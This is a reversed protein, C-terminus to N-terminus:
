GILECVLDTYATPDELPLNAMLLGQDYLLEALKKAREPDSERSESLRQLLPHEPNVELIRGCHYDSSPDVTHMYKEMEFSMGGDPVMTVAHSGLETSVRVDKVKKGLSEKLFDVGSQFAKAKEEAAKKEEETALDLDDTLINRFEHEAYTNLTQPIFTDVQETMLLVDFGRERLLQTQPLQSLRAASDGTAFYIHKQSEPMADCYEKLTIDKGEKDSRFEVLDQLLDKHMGYDSVLGFKLQRGFAAYFTEYKERDDKLMRELEAKIKKELNAAIVKLERTHQLMERSINLSLDASDVLGKVFSFHDPLLDACKEMILVGSAYLQLGKEYEKSYYNYPARSPIFLLANYTATGETKSQIVKAPAAWDGFKQKYFDAYEEDTVKKKDRKWLPVMSNLTEDETYSEYEPAKYNGNEDQDTGEIPRSKERLMRIPWRIYDSYKKVLGALRYDDLFESYHEEGEDDKIVLIVDTGCADKECPTITYGEAGRSEWKWAGAEGHARSIVTVKKAVMFASYFGVGFQGIIDVKSNAQTNQKFDLSGSKAITGLNQELEDKTMGIGNDSVTLTRADKDLSLRIGLDKKKVQVTDDTLSRFYLKDIADSANSILERLFIEKHTYISNIMLDLLRKSEAKFQKTAMTDM